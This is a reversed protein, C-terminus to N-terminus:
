KCIEILKNKKKYCIVFLLNFILNILLDLNTVKYKHSM